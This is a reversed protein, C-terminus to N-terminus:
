GTTLHKLELFAYPNNFDRVTFLTSTDVVIQGDEAISIKFRDM